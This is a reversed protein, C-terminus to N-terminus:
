SICQTHVYASNILCFLPHLHNPHTHLESVMEGKPGEEGKEGKEGKEGMDGMTGNEGKEGKDGKHGDVGDMGPLGPPGTCMNMFTIINCLFTLLVCEGARGRIGKKGMDGKMGKEGMDGMMGKMGKAGPLGAGGRVGTDGQPTFTYREHFKSKSSCHLRAVYM